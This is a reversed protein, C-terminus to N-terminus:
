EMIYAGFKQLLTDLNFGFEAEVEDRLWHMRKNELLGEIIYDLADAEKLSISRNNDITWQLKEIIAAYNFNGM